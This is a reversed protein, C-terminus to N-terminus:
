LRLDEINMKTLQTFSQELEDAHGIFSKGLFSM